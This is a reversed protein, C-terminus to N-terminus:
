RESLTATAKVSEWLQGDGFKAAVYPAPPVQSPPAVGNTGTNGDSPNVQAAASAVVAAVSISALWRVPNLSLIEMM